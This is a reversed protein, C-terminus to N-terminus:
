GTTRVCSNREREAYELVNLRCTTLTVQWKGVTNTTQTNHAQEYGHNPFTWEM